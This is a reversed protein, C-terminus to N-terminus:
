NAVAEAKPAADAAAKARQREKEDAEQQAWDAKVLRQWPTGRQEEPINPPEEPSNAARVRDYSPQMTPILFTRLREIEDKLWACENMVRNREEEHAKKLEVIESAHTLDRATQDLRLYELEKRYLEREKSLETEVFRTHRSVFWDRFSM